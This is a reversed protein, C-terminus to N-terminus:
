EGEELTVETVKLMMKSAKWGQRTDVPNDLDVMVWGKRQTDVVGSLTNGKPDTYSVRQGKTFTMTEM